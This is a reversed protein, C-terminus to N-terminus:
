RHENAAAAARGTYTPKTTTTTARGIDICARNTVLDDRATTPARAIKCSGGAAVTATDSSCAAISRAVEGVDSPSSASPDPTELTPV